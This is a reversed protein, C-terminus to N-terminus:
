AANFWFKEQNWWIMVVANKHPPLNSPCSFLKLNKSQIENWVRSALQGATTSMIIVQTEMGQEMVRM